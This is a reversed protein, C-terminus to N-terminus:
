RHSPINEQRFRTTKNKPNKKSKALGWLTPHNQFLNSRPKPRKNNTKLDKSPGPFTRRFIEKTPRINPQKKKRKKSQIEPNINEHTNKTQNTHLQPKKKM